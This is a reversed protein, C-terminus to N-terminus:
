ASHLSKQQTLYWGAAGAVALGVLRMAGEGAFLMLLGIGIAVLVGTRNPPVVNSKVSTVGNMAYTQANVIFRANTVKVSGQEFFVEETM